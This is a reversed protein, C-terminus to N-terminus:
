FEQRVDIKKIFDAPDVQVVKTQYFKKLRAIDGREIASFERYHDTTLAVEGTATNHISTGAADLAAAHYFTLWITGVGSLYFGYTKM